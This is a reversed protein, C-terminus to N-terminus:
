TRWVLDGCRDAEGLRVTVVVGIGAAVRDLVLPYMM